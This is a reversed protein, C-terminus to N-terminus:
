AGDTGRAGARAAILRRGIEIVDRVVRRGLAKIVAAHEALAVENTSVVDFM